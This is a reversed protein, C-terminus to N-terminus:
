RTEVEAWLTGKCEGGETQPPDGNVPPRPKKSLVKLETSNQKLKVTMKVSTSIYDILSAGATLHM